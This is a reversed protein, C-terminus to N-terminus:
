QPIAIIVIGSGGARGSGSSGGGGGGGTNVGGNGISTTTGSTGLNIATSSTDSIPAPYSSTDYIGGGGGGGLGGVGSYNITVSNYSFTYYSSAGGGGGWYYNGYISTAFGPLSCIIGNGGSGYYTVGNFARPTSFDDGAYGAGGGGGAHLATGSTVYGSGGANGQGATGSSGANNTANGRAGGGGGGSGGSTSVISYTGGHGGGTATINKSTATTWNVTTNSGNTETAGGGGVTISIVDSGLLSTTSQIVGGGGGGGGQDLGGGGGGGVALIYINSTSSCSYNFSYTVGTSKFAYIKYTIGNFISTGLVDTSNNWNTIASTITFSKSGRYNYIAAVEAATVGRTYMRIDDYYGTIIRDGPAGLVNVSAATATLGQYIFTADSAGATNWQASGPLYVVNDIYVKWGGTSQNTILVHHWTNDFVPVKLEMNLSGSKSQNMIFQPYQLNSSARDTSCIYNYDNGAGIIQFLRCYSSTPVRDTKIWCCYTIGTSGPLTLAAGYNLSGYMNPATLTGNVYLSAGGTKYEANTIALATLSTSTGTYNIIANNNYPAYNALTYNAIATGAIDGYNCPFWWVLSDSPSFISSDPPLFAIFVVGSGGNGTVANWVGGGGGGTNAGGSGAATNGTASNTGNNIGAGGYITASGDRASAGGGGGIGGNGGNHGTIAVNYSGGGGGGGWYWTSFTAGLLTLDKVGTLTTCRIGSGGECGASGSVGATGAGGGGGAQGGGTDLKGGGAGVGNSGVIGGPGGAGGSATIGIGGGGGTSTITTTSPTGSFVVTTNVGPTGTNPTVTAGTGGNGVSITITGTGASVAVEGMYVGGGGGGGGYNRGGGGGGGVAFVSIKGSSGTATYNITYNNTTASDTANRGQGFGYVTYGSSTTGVIIGNGTGLIGSPTTVATGNYSYSNITTSAAVLAVPKGKYRTTHSHVSNIFNM